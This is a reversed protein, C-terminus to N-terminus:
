AAPAATRREAAYGGAAASAIRLLNVVIFLPLGYSAAAEEVSATGLVLGVYLATAVAGILWGHLVRAASLPRTAFYAVVFPVVLCAVPVVIQFVAQESLIALFPLATVGLGVEVLLAAILVRLWRIQKLM